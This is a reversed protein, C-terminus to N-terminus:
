GNDDGEIDATKGLVSVSNEGCTWLDVPRFPPTWRIACTERLAISVERVVDMGNGALDVGVIM